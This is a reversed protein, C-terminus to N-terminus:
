ALTIRLVSNEPAQTACVTIQQDLDATPLSHVEILHSSLVSLGLFVLCNRVSYKCWPCVDSLQAANRIEGMCAGSSDEESVKSRFEEKLYNRVVLKIRM